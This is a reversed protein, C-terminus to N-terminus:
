TVNSLAEGLIDIMHDIDKGHVILPPTFRLVNGATCNLLLGKEMCAKVISSGDRTLEMGVLLGMGRIDVIVAPFEKQLSKLESKLYEGMRNCQDFIFGDELITEITAIAAACALPNGGFTSAHSGPTFASAAKDSALMAGIPVGSGLGKALTVIDPAIHFHEYAFLKGTRGMGTQVEDLILLLNRKNCLERVEKFYDDDPVKVGGEGQIPELMVACTNQTIASELASVDNFATHKFGPVLPEFGKQFKEQGTATVTALTRGHFSNVATIIEFKDKGLHEKAYKRALKIAAENAEAGSNCFFVKDAFSREVLLKALKIQPEIHYLNSVHILRQAQKQIAVVVKPHCHGLVNVAIGGVFDLYEKGDSGWVKMGRGKRLVIPFRNYTNMLYHGSDELLKKIEM